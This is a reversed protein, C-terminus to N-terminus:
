DRLAFKGEKREYGPQKEKRPFQLKKHNNPLFVKDLETQLRVRSLCIPSGSSM